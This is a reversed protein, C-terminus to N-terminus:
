SQWFVERKCLRCVTQGRSSGLFGPSTTITLRNLNRGAICMHNTNGSGSITEELDAVTRWIRSRGLYSIGTDRCRTGAFSEQSLTADGSETEHMNDPGM